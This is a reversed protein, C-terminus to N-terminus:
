LYSHRRPPKPKEKKKSNFFDEMGYPISSQGQPNPNADRHYARFNDCPPEIWTLVETYNDIGKRIDKFLMIEYHVFFTKNADKLSDRVTQKFYEIHSDMDMDDGEIGMTECALNYLYRKYINGDTDKATAVLYRM